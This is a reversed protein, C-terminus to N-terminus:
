INFDYNYIIIYIYQNLNKILIDVGMKLLIAIVAYVVREGFAFQGLIILYLCTTVIISHNIGVLLSRIVIKINRKSM